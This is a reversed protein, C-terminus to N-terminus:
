FTYGQSKSFQFIQLTKWIEGATEETQYLLEQGESCTM